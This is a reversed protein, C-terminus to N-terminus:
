GATSLNVIVVGAVCVVIGVITMVGLPEKFALASIATAFVIGLACWTAYAVSLQIGQLAKSLCLFCAVYLGLCAATFGLHSFGDSLKMFYTGGCEMAIAAFLLLYHM